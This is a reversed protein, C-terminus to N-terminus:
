NLLYYPPLMVANRKKMEFRIGYYKSKSLSFDILFGLADLPTMRKIEGRKPINIIEFDEITALNKKLAEIIKALHKNDNEEAAVQTARLLIFLDNKVENAIKKAMEYKVTKSLERPDSSPRGVKSTSAKPIHLWEPKVKVIKIQWSDNFSEAVREFHRNSAAFADSFVKFWHKM